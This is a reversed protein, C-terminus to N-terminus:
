YTPATDLTPHGSFKQYGALTQYLLGLEGVVVKVYVCGTFQQQLSKYEGWTHGIRMDFQGSEPEQYRIPGVFKGTSFQSGLKVINHANGNKNFRFKKNDVSHVNKSTLACLAFITNGLAGVDYDLLILRQYYM